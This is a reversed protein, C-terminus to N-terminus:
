EIVLADSNKTSSMAGDEKTNADNNTLSNNERATRESILSPIALSNIEKM